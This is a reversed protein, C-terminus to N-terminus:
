CIGLKELRHLVDLFQYFALGINDNATVENIVDQVKKRQSQVQVLGLDVFLQQIKPIGVLGNDNPELDTFVQRFQQVAEASLGAEKINEKEKRGTEYM